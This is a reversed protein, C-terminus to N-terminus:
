LGICYVPAKAGTKVDVNSKRAQLIARIKDRQKPEHLSWLLLRFYFCGINFRNDM